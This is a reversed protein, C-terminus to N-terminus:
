MWINVTKGAKSNNQLVEGQKTVLTHFAQRKNNITPSLRKGQSRHRQRDGNFKSISFQGCYQGTNSGTGKGKGKCSGKQWDIIKRIIKTIRQQQWLLVKARECEYRYRPILWSCVTNWKLENKNPISTVYVRRLIWFSPLPLIWPYLLRMMLWLWTDFYENSCTWLQLCYRLALHFGYCPLLFLALTFGSSFLLLLEACHLFLLYFAIHTLVWCVDLTENPAFFSCQSLVRSSQAQHQQIKDKSTIKMQEM